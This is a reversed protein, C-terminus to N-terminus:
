RKPDAGGGEAKSKKSEVTSQRSDVTSKRRRLLLLLSLGALHAALLLAAKAWLPPHYAPLGALRVATPVGPELVAARRAVFMWTSPGEQTVQAAPAGGVALKLGRVNATVAVRLEQLPIGYRLTYAIAEDAAPISYELVASIGQPPVQEPLLVAGDVLEVETLREGGVRLGGRGARSAGAPAAFRRAGAPLVVPRNGTPALDLMEQVWIRDEDVNLVQSVTAHVDIAGSAAQPVAVLLGLITSALARSV